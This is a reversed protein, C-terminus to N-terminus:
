AGPGSMMDGLKSAAQSGFAWLNALAISAAYVTLLTGSLEVQYGAASAALVGVLSINLLYALGDNTLWHRSQTSQTEGSEQDPNDNNEPM